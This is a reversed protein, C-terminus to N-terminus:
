KRWKSIRLLCEGRRSSRRENMNPQTNSMSWKMAPPAKVRCAAVVRDDRGNPCEKSKMLKEETQGQGEGQRMWRLAEEAEESRVSTQAQQHKDGSQAM